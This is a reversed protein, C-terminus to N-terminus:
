FRVDIQDAKQIVHNNTIIYKKGSEHQYIWGSGNGQRQPVDYEDYQNQQEEEQQEKRREFFRRLDEPLQPLMRESMGEAKRSISLHVVSPEVTRAVKGFADNIAELPSDKLQQRTKEVQADKEAWALQRVVTPGGLLVAATMAALVLSPAYSRIGSM